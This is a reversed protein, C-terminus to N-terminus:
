PRTVTMAKWRECARKICSSVRPPRCSRRYRSAGASGPHAAPIPRCRQALCRDGPRLDGADRPLRRWQERRHGLREAVRLQGGPRSRRSPELAKNVELLVMWPRTEDAAYAADPVLNQAREASQKAALLDGRDLAARAQAVLRLAEAKQEALGGALEGGPPPLRRPAGAPNDALNMHPGADAARDARGLSPSPGGRDAVLVQDPTRDFQSYNARLDKAQQALQQAEDFAAYGLLGISQDMLFQAFDQTYVATDAGAAPGQSFVSAKRVLAEVKDPSDANLPYELGLQKAQGVFLSPANPTARPSRRAPRM